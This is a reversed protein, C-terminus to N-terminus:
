PVVPIRWYKSVPRPLRFTRPVAVISSVFFPRSCITMVSIGYLTLRASNILRM